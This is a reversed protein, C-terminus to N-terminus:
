EFSDLNKVPIPLGKLIASLSLIAYQINANLLIDKYSRRTASKVSMLSSLVVTLPVKGSNSFM